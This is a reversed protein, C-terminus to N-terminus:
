RRRGPRPRVAVVRTTQTATNDAIVPDGQEATVTASTTMPGLVSVTGSVSVGAISGAAITGLDCTITDIIQGVPPTCGAGQGPTVLAVGLSGPLAATLVVNTADDPGVNQV